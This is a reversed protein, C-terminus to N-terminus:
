LSRASFAVLGHRMVHLRHPDVFVASGRPAEWADEATSAIFDGGDGSAGDLGTGCGVLGTAGFGM